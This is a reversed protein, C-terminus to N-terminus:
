VIGSSNLIAPRLFYVKDCSQVPVLNKQLEPVLRLAPFPLLSLVFSFSDRFLANVLAKICLAESGNCVCHQWQRCNTVVLATAKLFFSRLFLLFRTVLFATDPGPPGAQSWCSLSTESILKLVLVWVGGGSCRLTSAVALSWVSAVSADDGKSIM